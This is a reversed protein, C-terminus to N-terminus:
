HNRLVRPWAESVKVCVEEGDALHPLDRADGLERPGDNHALDIEAGVMADVRLM